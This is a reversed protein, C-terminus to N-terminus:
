VHTAIRPIDGKIGGEEGRCASSLRASHAGDTACASSRARASSCLASAASCASRFARAFLAAAPRDDPALTPAAAVARACTGPTPAAAITPAAAVAHAYAGPTPAAALTPAAAVAHAYAGPTPAPAITPAAAIAHAYAGPTPAAAVAHAYTGPTPAPAPEPALTPAAAVARACTHTCCCSCARMHRTHTRTRTCAHPKCGLCVILALWPWVFLVASMPARLGRGQGCERKDRRKRGLKSTRRTCRWGCTSPNHWLAGVRTCGHMRARWHAAGQFGGSLAAPLELAAAQGCAHGSACAPVGAARDAPGARVWCSVSAAQTHQM